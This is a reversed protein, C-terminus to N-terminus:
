YAGQSLKYEIRLTDVTGLTLDEWICYQKISDKFFEMSKQYLFGGTVISDLGYEKYSFESTDYGDFQRHCDLRLVNKEAGSPYYNVIRKFTIRPDNINYDNIATDRDIQTWAQYTLKDGKRRYIDKMRHDAVRGYILTDRGNSDYLHTKIYEGECCDTGKIRDEIIRGTSDKKEYIITKPYSNGTLIFYACGGIGLLGFVIFILVIKFIKL